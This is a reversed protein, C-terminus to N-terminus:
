GAAAVRLCRRALSSLGISDLEDPAVWRVAGGARLSSRGRGRFLLVHIERHTLVQRVDGAPELAPTRTLGCLATAGRLAKQVAGAVVPSSPLDWLGAFLEGEGRRRLLVTGDGRFLAAAAWVLLPRPRREKPAPFSEADGHRHAECVFALPCDGCRPKRPTCILAGLEMLAENFEGARGRPLLRPAAQWARERAEQ